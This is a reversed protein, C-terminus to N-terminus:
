KTSRQGCLVSEYCNNLFCDFLIFGLQMITAKVCHLGEGYIVIRGDWLEFQLSCYPRM